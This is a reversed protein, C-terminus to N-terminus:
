GELLLRLHRLFRYPCGLKFDKGQILLTRFQEVAKHVDVQFFEWLQIRPFIDEWIIKRICQFIEINFVIYFTDSCMGKEM